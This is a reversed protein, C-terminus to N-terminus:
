LHHAGSSEEGKLDLIAVGMGKDHACYEDIPVRGADSHESLQWDTQVIDKIGVTEM